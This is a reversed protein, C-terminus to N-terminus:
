EIRSAVMIYKTVGERKKFLYDTELKQINYIANCYVNM